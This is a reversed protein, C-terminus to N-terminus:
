FQWRMGVNPRILWGSRGSDSIAHLRVGGTIAASDGLKLAVEAGVSPGAHYEIMEVDDLAIPPYIALGRIDIDYDTATSIRNFAVGGLFSLEIREGVDQRVFALASLSMYHRESSVDLDISPISVATGPPLTPLMREWTLAPLFQPFSDEFTGSRAYEFELGWRESFARGVKVNFGIAEGDISVDGLIRPTDSDDYDVKAFRAIDGVLSAGVYTSQAAAPTSLM